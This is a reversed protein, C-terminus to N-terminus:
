TTSFRKKPVGPAMKSIVNGIGAFYYGRLTVVVVRVSQSRSSEAEENM